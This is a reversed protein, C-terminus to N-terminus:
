RNYMNLETDGKIYVCSCGDMGGFLMLKAEAKWDLWLHINSVRVTTEFTCFNFKLGSNCLFLSLCNPEMSEWKSLQLTTATSNLSCGRSSGGASLMTNLSPKHETHPKQFIILFSIYIDTIGSLYCLEKRRAEEKSEM